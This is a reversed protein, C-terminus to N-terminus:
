INKLQSIIRKKESAITLYHYLVVPHSILYIIKLLSPFFKIKEKKNEWEIIRDKYRKTLLLVKDSLFDYEQISIIEISKSKLYYSLSVLCNDIAINLNNSSINNGHKRLSLLNENVNIITGINSIRLWLDYDEAVQMKSDYGGVKELMKKNIIVSPHIINSVQNILKSLIENHTVPLKTNGYVKGNEDIFFAQSGIVAVEDKIYKIQEEFRIPSSIDDADMRAIWNARSYSVGLNLTHILGTNPKQFVRIRKDTFQDIITQSDDTSGDNIIILEFDTFTQSLISEIAEALFRSANYVPLIVSILPKM